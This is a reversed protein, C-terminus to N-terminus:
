PCTQAWCGVVARGGTLLPEGVATVGEVVSRGRDVVSRGRDVVSRERRWFARAERPLEKPPQALFLSVPGM